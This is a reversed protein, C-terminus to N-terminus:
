LKGFNEPPLRHLNGTLHLLNKKPLDGSARRLIDHISNDLAAYPTVLGTWCCPPVTAGKKTTNPHWLTAWGHKWDKQCWPGSISIFWQFGRSMQLSESLLSLASVSDLWIRHLKPLFFYRTQSTTGRTLIRKSSRLRGYGYLVTMELRQSITRSAQVLVGHYVTSILFVTRM